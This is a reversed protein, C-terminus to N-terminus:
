QAINLARNRFRIAPNLIYELIKNYYDVTVTQQESSFDFDLIFLERHIM